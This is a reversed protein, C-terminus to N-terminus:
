FNHQTTWSQSQSEGKEEEEEKKDDEEEKVCQKFPTVYNCSAM